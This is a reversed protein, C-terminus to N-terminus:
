PSPMWVTGTEAVSEVLDPVPVVIQGVRPDLIVADNGRVKEFVVYRPEGKERRGVLSGATVVVDPEEQLFLIM